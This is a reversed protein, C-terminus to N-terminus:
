RRGSRTKPVSHGPVGNRQVRLFEMLRQGAGLVHEHLLAAALDADGARAAAAIARHEGVATDEGHTLALQMRMYRDSQNHLTTLVNMTLPRNAVGLLASHFLWNLSGWESIDNDEFAAEYAELIGDARDLDDATLNPIAQRILEGELLARLQSLEEIEALSLSSVVAGYHPNFTVLGESELQRLAERVPIRSVGLSEAVADQRLQEGETYEGRLIRERLVELAMGTMTKREVSM